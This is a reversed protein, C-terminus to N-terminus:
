IKIKIALIVLQMEFRFPENVSLIKYHLHLGHSEIGTTYRSVISKLKYVSYSITLNPLRM